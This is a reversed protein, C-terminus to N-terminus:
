QAGAADPGDSRLSLPAPTALSSSPVLRVRESRSSKAPSINLVNMDDQSEVFAHQHASAASEESLEELGPLVIDVMPRVAVLTAKLGEPYAIEEANDFIRNWLIAMSNVM